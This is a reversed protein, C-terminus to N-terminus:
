KRGPDTECNREYVEPFEYSLFRLRKRTKEYDIEVTRARKRLGDTKKLHDKLEDEAKTAKERAVKAALEAKMANRDLENVEKRMMLYDTRCNQSKRRAAVFTKKTELYYKRLVKMM